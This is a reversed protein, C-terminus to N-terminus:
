SQGNVKRTRIIAPVGETIYKPLDLKDLQWFLGNVLANGQGLISELEGAEDETLELVITRVPKVENRTVKATAM